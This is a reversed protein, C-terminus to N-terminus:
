YGTRQTTQQDRGRLGFSHFGMASTNRACHASCPASVGFREGVYEGRNHDIWLSRSKHELLFALHYAWGLRVRHAALLTKLNNRTTKPLSHLVITIKWDLEVIAKSHRGGHFRAWLFALEKRKFGTRWIKGANRKFVERNIEQTGVPINKEPNASKILESHSM